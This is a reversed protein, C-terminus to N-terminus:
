GKKIGPAQKMEKRLQLLEGILGELQFAGKDGTAREGIWLTKLKPDYDGYDAYQIFFTNADKNNNSSNIFTIMRRDTDTYSLMELISDLVPISMPKGDKYANQLAMVSSNLDNDVSHKNYARAIETAIYVALGTFTYADAETIKQPNKLYEDWKIALYNMVYSDFGQAWDQGCKQAAEHNILTWLKNNDVSGSPTMVAKILPNEAVRRADEPSLDTGQHNIVLDLLYM